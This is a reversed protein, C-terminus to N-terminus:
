DRPSPSTYLLCDKTWTIGGSWPPNESEVPQGEYFVEIQTEIGANWPQPFDVLYYNGPKDARKFTLENSEHMVRTISLPQQLDIQMRQGAATTEFTIKNSGVLRKTEPFVEVSLHYHKVDWWAREPTISGRQFDATSFERVRGAVTQAEVPSTALVLVIAFLGILLM